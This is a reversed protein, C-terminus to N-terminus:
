RRAPFRLGAAAPKDAAFYGTEKYPLNIRAPQLLGNVSASLWRRGMESKDLGAQRLNDAYKEHASKKEGFLGRNSSECSSCSIVCVGIILTVGPLKFRM